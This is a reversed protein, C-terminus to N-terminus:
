NITKCLMGEPVFGDVPKGWEMLERVVTSSIHEKEPESFLIVTEIGSLKRNANAITREYDFDSATRIGRLIFKANESVALDVTLGKYCKVRVRPENKFLRVIMEERQSPSFFTKKDLNIGIAVIIEDFLALGREVLSLHGLTFPDFTGPFVAIKKKSDM